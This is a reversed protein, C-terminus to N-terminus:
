RDDSLHEGIANTFKGPKRDYVEEGRAVCKGAQGGRARDISGAFRESHEPPLERESLDEALVDLDHLDGLDEALDVARNRVSKFADPLYPGLIELQYRLDKARKRWAHFDEAEGGKRARKMAKRGRRYTRGVNGAVVESSAKLPRDRFRGAVSDLAAAVLALRAPELEGRHREAEGELHARWIVLGHPEPTGDGVAGLTAIKVEADRAGSLAGSASRLDDNAIKREDDSIVGRLLRLASRAKKISKRAEHVHGGPDVALGAERVSAAAESARAAVIRAVGPGPAEGERLRFESKKGPRGRLALSQNAWLADGTLERGFWDPIAFRAASAESGFEVEVTQLDELDGSFRDVEAVLGDGLEINRRVKELRRGETGPWLEEFTEPPIEVEIEDRTRGHGRKVTLTCADGARRLRM